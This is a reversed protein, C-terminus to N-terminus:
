IKKLRCLYSRVLMLIHTVPKSPLMEDAAASQPPEAHVHKSVNIIASLKWGSIFLYIQSVLSCSIWLGPEPEPSSVMMEREYTM